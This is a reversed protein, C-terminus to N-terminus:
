PQREGFLATGIRVMTSGEEVAIEYDNSMGMSLHLPQFGAVEAACREFRDRTGRFTARLVREDVTYPAMTMLGTVRLGQLATIRVAASLLEEVTLFGSKSGEAAANVQLLVDVTRGARVAEQSLEEALRESDVSHILNTLAVARRAKNRQLHGILHWQVELDAVPLLDALAARKADLEAVRNEGCDRLGVRWAAVVAELPHGKSVAVLRVARGDSRSRARELRELVAPLAVKLRAEYM